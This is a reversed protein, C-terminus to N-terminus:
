YDLLDDLNVVRPQRCRRKQDCYDEFSRQVQELGEPSLKWMGRENSGALFGMERLENRAWRTRNQWRIEPCGGGDVDSHWLSPFEYRVEIIKYVDHTGIGRPFESLARLLHWELEECNSIQIREKMNAGPLFKLYTLMHEENTITVGLHGSMLLALPSLMWMPCNTDTPIETPNWEMHIADGRSIVEVQFTKGYPIARWHLALGCSKDIQTQEGGMHASRVPLWSCNGQLNKQAQRRSDLLDPQTFSLCTM